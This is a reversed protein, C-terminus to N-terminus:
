SNNLSWEVIKETHITTIDEWNNLYSDRELDLYLFSNDNSIIMKALTSKGCQRPGLIAVVPFIKQYELIRSHLDRQIM